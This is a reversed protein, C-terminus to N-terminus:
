RDPARVETGPREPLVLVHAKGTHVLQRRARPPHKRRRDGPGPQRDSNFKGNLHWKGVHCTTYGRKKLLEPLTIESARLHMDSGRRIWRYVGNRKPTRGTLLAARSPSCVASASYFRIFRMGENAFEDVNPSSINPHGYCGLDGRGQDDTLFVVVNPKESTTQHFPACATLIFLILLCIAPRMRRRM